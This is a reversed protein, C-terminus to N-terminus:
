TLSVALMRDPLHESSADTYFFFELKLSDQPAVGLRYVRQVITPALEVQRARNARHQSESVFQKGKRFISMRDEVYPGCLSRRSLASYYLRRFADSGMPGGSKAGLM